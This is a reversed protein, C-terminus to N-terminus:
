ERATSKPVSGMMGVIFVLFVVNYYGRRIFNNILAIVVLVVMFMFDILFVVFLTIFLMVSLAGVVM